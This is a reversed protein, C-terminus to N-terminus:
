TASPDGTDLYDHSRGQYDEIDWGDEGAKAYVPGSLCKETGAPSTSCIVRSPSARYIGACDACSNRGKKSPYVSIALAAALDAHHLYHPKVRTEVFARMLEALTAPDDNVGRLLVSQSVDSFRCRGIKRLRCTRRGDIRASPQLALLVYVPARGRLAAILGQTVRAPDVM